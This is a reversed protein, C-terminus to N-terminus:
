LISRNFFGRDNGQKRISASTNIELPRSVVFLIKIQNFWEKLVGSKVKM